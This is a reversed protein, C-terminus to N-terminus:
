RDCTWEVPEAALHRPAVGVSLPVALTTNDASTSEKTVRAVSSVPCGIPLPERARLHNDRSLLGTCALAEISGCTRSTPM